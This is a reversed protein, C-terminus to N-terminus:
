QKHGGGMTPTSSYFPAQSNTGTLLNVQGGNIGKALGRMWAEEMQQQREGDAQISLRKKEMFFDMVEKEIDPWDQCGSFLVKMADFKEMAAELGHLEFFQGVRGVVAERLTTEKKKRKTRNSTDEKPM